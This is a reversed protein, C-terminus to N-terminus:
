IFVCLSFHFDFSGFASKIKLSASADIKNLTQPTHKLKLSTDPRACVEQYINFKNLQLWM